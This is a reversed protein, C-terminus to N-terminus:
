ESVAKAISQAKPLGVRSDTHLIQRALNSPEVVDHDVISIYGSIVLLLLVIFFSLFRTLLALLLVRSVRRFDLRRKKEEFCSVSVLLLWISFPLAVWVM